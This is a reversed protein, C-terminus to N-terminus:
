LIIEWGVSDHPNPGPFQGPPFVSDIDDSLLICSVSGMTVIGTHDYELTAVDREAVFRGCIPFSCESLHGWTNWTHTEQCKLSLWIAVLVTVPTMGPALATASKLVMHDRKLQLM